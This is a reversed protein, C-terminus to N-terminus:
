AINKIHQDAPQLGLLSLPTTIHEFAAFVLDPEPIALIKKLQDFIGTYSDIIRADWNLELLNCASQITQPDPGELEVFDGYPMEDLTVMVGALQYTTRFKEYRMQVQYGLAELLSRAANEDSVSFEIEQRSHVGQDLSGPGKYTLTVQRDRRLRLVRKAQKLSGDPLDFRDNIEHVRPQDLVAMSQLRQELRSRHLIWFKVELEKGDGAMRFRGKLHDGWM